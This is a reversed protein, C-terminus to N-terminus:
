KNDELPLRTLYSKCANEIKDTKIVHSKRKEQLCRLVCRILESYNGYKYTSVGNPRPVVDSAVVPCKYHLAELVSISEGDTATTRLFIDAYKFLPWLEHQGHLLYLSGKNHLRNFRQILKSPCNNQKFDAIAFVMRFPLKKDCLTELLDLSETFGYLDIGDSTQVYRWASNLLIYYNDAKIFRWLSDPYNSTIEKYRSEDPPLFPSEVLPSIGFQEYFSCLRRHVVVVRAARAAFFALLKKKITSDTYFRSANHDYLFCQKLIHLVFLFVLVFPNLTNVIFRSKKRFIASCILSLWWTKKVLDIITPSYGQAVLNAVKRQAFVSVGGIPPPFSSIVVYKQRRNNM